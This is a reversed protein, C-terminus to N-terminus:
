RWGPLPRQTWIGLGPADPDPVFTANGVVYEGDTNPAPLPDLVTSGIISGTISLDHHHPALGYWSHYEGADYLQGANDQAYCDWCWDGPWGFTDTGGTLPKACFCCNRERM